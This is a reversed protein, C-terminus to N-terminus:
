GGHVCVSSSPFGIGAVHANCASRVRAMLFCPVGEFSHAVQEPPLEPEGLVDAKHENNQSIKAKVCIQTTALNADHDM